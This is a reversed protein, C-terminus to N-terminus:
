RDEDVREVTHVGNVNKLKEIIDRVLAKLAKNDILKSVYPYTAPLSANLILRGVCTEILEHAESKQNPVKIKQTKTLFGYEYATIAEDKSSYYQVDKPDKPEKM